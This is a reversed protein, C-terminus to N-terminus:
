ARYGILMVMGRDNAGNTLLTITDTVAITSYADNITGARTITTDVAMVIADTIANAGSKVTVTGSASTARSQVIVDVLEFAYPITVAQGTSHCDSTIAQKIIIPAYTAKDQIDKIETGLACAQRVADSKDLMAAQAASITM